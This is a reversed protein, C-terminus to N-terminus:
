ALEDTESFVEWVLYFVGGLGTGSLACAWVLTAFVSLRRNYLLHRLVFACLLLLDLFVAVYALVVLLHLPGDFGYPTQARLIVNAVYLPVHLLQVVLMGKLIRNRTEYTMGPSPEDFLTHDTSM